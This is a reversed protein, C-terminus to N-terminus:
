ADTKGWDTLCQDSIDCVEGLLLYPDCSFISNPDLQNAHDHFFNILDNWIGIAPSRDDKHGAVAANVRIILRNQVDQLELNESPASRVSGASISLHEIEKAVANARLGKADLIIEETAGGALLKAEMNTPSPIDPLLSRSLLPSPQKAISGVGANCIDRTLRKADILKKQEAAVSSGSVYAPWSVKPSQGEMARTIEKLANHYIDEAQSSTLRKNLSHILRINVSDIHERPPLTHFILRQLFTCCESEKVKMAKAVKKILTPDSRGGESSLLKIDGHPSLPQELHAELSADVGLTSKHTRYLSQLVGDKATLDSLTWLGQTADRSKIQLFRWKNAPYEICADEIHEPIVSIEPGCLGCSLFFPFIVKAQYIYRAFTNTGSDDPPKINIPDLSM